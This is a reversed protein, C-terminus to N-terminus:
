GPVYETTVTHYIKDLDHTEPTLAALLKSFAVLDEKTADPTVDNFVQKVGKEEGIVQYNVELRANNFLEM